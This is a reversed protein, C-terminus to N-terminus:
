GLHQGAACIEDIQLSNDHGPVVIVRSTHHCIPQPLKVLHHLTGHHPFASPLSFFLVIYIQTAQPYNQDSNINPSVLIDFDDARRRVQEMMWQYPIAVDMVPNLRFAPRVCNLLTFIMCSSDIGDWDLEGPNMTSWRQVQNATPRASCRSMMAM